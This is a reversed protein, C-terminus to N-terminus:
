EPENSDLAELWIERWYHLMGRSCFRRFVGSCETESLVVTPQTIKRLLGTKEDILKSIKRSVVMEQGCFTAMEKPDFWLGRNCGDADLTKLIRELPKVRVRQGIELNLKESPTRNRNPGVLHDRRRLLKRILSSFISSVISTMPVNDRRYDDVYQKFKLPGVPKAIQVLETQQCRYRQNEPEALVRETLWQRAPSDKDDNVNESKQLVSETSPRLWQTKWIFRCGMDCGGHDAGNCRDPTQLVVCNELSGIYVSDANVCSKNAFRKVRFRNGCHDIMEPMFPLGDLMGQEDLGAIISEVSCVKVWQGIRPVFAPGNASDLLSSQQSLNPDNM